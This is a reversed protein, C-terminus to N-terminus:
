WFLRWDIFSDRVRRRVQGPSRARLLRDRTLRSAGCNKLKSSFVARAQEVTRGFLRFISFWTSRKIPRGRRCPHPAAEPVDGRILGLHPGRRHTAMQSSHASRYHSPHAVTTKMPLSSAAEGWRANATDGAQHWESRIRRKSTHARSSGAGVGYRRRQGSSDVACVPRALLPLLM